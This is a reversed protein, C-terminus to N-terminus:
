TGRQLLARVEPNPNRRETTVASFIETMDPLQDTEILRGSKLEDKVVIPPIVALGVGERALLRM